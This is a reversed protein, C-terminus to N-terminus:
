WCAGTVAVATLAVVMVGIGAAVAIAAIPIDLGRFTAAVIRLGILGLPLGIALGIFGLRVGDGVFKSAIQRGRVGLAM